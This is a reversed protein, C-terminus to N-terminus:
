EQDDLLRSLTPVASQLRDLVATVSAAVHTYDGEAAAELVDAHELRYPYFLSGSQISFGPLVALTEPSTAKPKWTRANLRTQRFEFGSIDQNLGMLSTISYSDESPGHYALQFFADANPRKGPKTTWEPPALWIDDLAFVGSWQHADAWRRVEKDLAELVETELANARSVAAELDMWNKLLYTDLEITSM